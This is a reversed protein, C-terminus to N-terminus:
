DGYLMQRREKRLRVVDPQVKKRLDMQHKRLYSELDSTTVGKDHRGLRISLCSEGQLYFSLEARFIQDNVVFLAEGGLKNRDIFRLNEISQLEM